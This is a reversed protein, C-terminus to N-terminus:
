PQLLFLGEGALIDKPEKKEAIPPQGTNLTYVILSLAIVTNALHAHGRGIM